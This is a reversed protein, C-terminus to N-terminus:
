FLKSCKHFTPKWNVGHMRLYDAYANLTNHGVVFSQAGGDLVADKANQSNSQLYVEDLPEEEPCNIMM